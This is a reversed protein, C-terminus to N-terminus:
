WLQAPYNGKKIEGSLFVKLVDKDEPYTLGMWQSNSQHVEVKIYHDNIMNQIAEPIYFESKLDAGEQLYRLFQDQLFDFVSPHFCWFNMSVLDKENLIETGAATESIIESGQRQIHTHEVVEILNYADDVRCVGRSVPGNESLTANVPFAIMEYSDNKITDASMSEMIRIYSTRGYFDDANIVVFSENVVSKATLVAHATGWPKSREKALGIYKESVFGDMEQPVFHMEVNKKIGIQELRTFYDKAIHPNVILVFKNFGALIADFISFELLTEGSTWLADTQKLGKYRSGLGGALIM